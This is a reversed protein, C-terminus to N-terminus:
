KPFYQHLPVFCEVHSTVNCTGYIAYVSLQLLIYGLFMTQKLCTVTFLKCPPSLLIIIIIIYDYFYNFLPVIVPLPNPLEIPIAVSSRAPRDPISDRHPRSKGGTWVPGPAWGGEQLIHVPGKGATFHPRPTSSVV